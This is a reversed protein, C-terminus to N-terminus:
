RAGVGDGIGLTASPQPPHLDDRQAEQDAGGHHKQEAGPGLGVAGRCPHAVDSGSGLGAHDTCESVPECDGCQEFM